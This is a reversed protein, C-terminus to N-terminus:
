NDNLVVYALLATFLCATITPIFAFYTLPYDLACILVVLIMSVILGCISVIPHMFAKFISGDTEFKGRTIKPDFARTENRSPKM